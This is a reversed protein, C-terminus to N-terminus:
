KKAKATAAKNKRTPAKKETAKTADAEKQSVVKTAVMARSVRVFTAKEVELKLETDTVEDIKGILGGNMIVKDGKKLESVMKQHDKQKKAQPRILLFYMLAFMLVLPLLSSLNEM